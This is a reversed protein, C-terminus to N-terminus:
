SISGLYFCICLINNINTSSYQCLLTDQCKAEFVMIILSAIQLTTTSFVSCMWLVMYYTCLSIIICKIKSEAHIGDVHKRLISFTILFLITIYIDDLVIGVLLCCLLIICNHTIVDLGFEFQIQENPQLIQSDILYNSIQRCM